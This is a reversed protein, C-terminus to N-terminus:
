ISPRRCRADPPRVSSADSIARRRRARWNCRAGRARCERLRERMRRGPTRTCACASWARGAVPYRRRVFGARAPCRGRTPRRPIAHAPRSPGPRPCCPRGSCPRRCAILGIVSARKRVPMAKAAAALAASPWPGPLRRRIPDGGSRGAPGGGREASSALAARLGSSALAQSLSRPAARPRQRSSTRSTALPSADAPGAEAPAAAPPVEDRQAARPKSGL